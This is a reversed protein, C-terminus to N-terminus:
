EGLELQPKKSTSSTNPKQKKISEEVKAIAAKQREAEATGEDTDAGITIKKIEALKKVSSWKTIESPYVGVGKRILVESGVWLPNVKVGSNKEATDKPNLDIYDYDRVVRIDVLSSIQVFKKM